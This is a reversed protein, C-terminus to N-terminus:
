HLGEHVIIWLWHTVAWTITLGIATGGIVLVSGALSHRLPGPTPHLPKRDPAVLM